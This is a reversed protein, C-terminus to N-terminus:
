DSDRAIQFLPSGLVAAIAAFFLAENDDFVLRRYANEIAPDNLLFARTDQPLRNSTLATGLVARAWDSVLTELYTEVKASTLIVASCLAYQKVIASSCAASYAERLATRITLLDATFQKRARSYHYPM